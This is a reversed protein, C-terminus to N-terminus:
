DGRERRSKITEGITGRDSEEGDLFRNEAFTGTNIHSVRRVLKQRATSGRRSLKKRGNKGPLQSTARRASKGPGFKSLERTM